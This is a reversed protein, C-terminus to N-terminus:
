MTRLFAILDSREAATFGVGFRGEYFDLVDSLSAASGNHFYPARTPLGRLIPGKFKGIDAWRGTILARGPDTTKVIEGTTKNRLTYLPLDPTRRAEDTLGIDIPLPVSHNGVNPSNHCTTCTATISPAGLMDNLGKVGTVQFQRTGFIAQGRAVAARKGEKSHPNAPSSANWPYITMASPNFAAADRGSALPDNIGFFFPQTSLNNPGGGGQQAVLSGVDLDSVQATYLGTEFLVIQARQADTISMTAQAHGLTADNSQNSLSQAVTLTTASERGDWMVTTLFALNTTPLPRRFLSLQAASAFGYPDDVAALTFEATDRVGIGVRILGKTLLMGYAVRRAAVTSVDSLPSSSGDVTQFIPDTGNTADFRQQVHAPIITWGDTQQHCSSCSRGNTGLSQFFPNAFDFAGNVNFTNATGTPNDAAITDSGGGSKDRAVGQEVIETLEAGGSCGLIAAGFVCTGM